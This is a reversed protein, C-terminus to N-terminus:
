HSESSPKSKTDAEGPDENLNPLHPHVPDAHARIWTLTIMSDKSHPTQRLIRLAQPSICGKSFNAIASRSDCVTTYSEGALTALAITVEATEATPTAVSTAHHLAGDRTTLAVFCTGNSYQAADVFTVGPVQPLSKIIAGDRAQRRARNLEPHM